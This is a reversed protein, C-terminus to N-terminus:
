KKNLNIELSKYSLTTWLYKMKQFEKKNALLKQLVEQLSYFDEKPKLKGNHYEEYSKDLDYWNVKLVHQLCYTALEGKTAVFYPCTHVKSLKNNSLENILHTVLSDQPLRLFNYWYTNRNFCCEPQGCTSNTCYEGGTLCGGVSDSLFLWKQQITLSKWITDSTPIMFLAHHNNAHKKRVTVTDSQALVCQGSFLLIIILIPRITLFPVSM